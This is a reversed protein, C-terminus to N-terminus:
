LEGSVEQLWLRFRHIAANGPFEHGKKEESCFTLKAGSQKLKAALKETLAFPCNRDQKGHFIFVPIGQFARLNESQLFNPHDGPIGWRNALDPHGSFVALAQFQNTHEWFTRYAGYGGMSFGALIMCNSDVPYHAIVDDIAEQIDQQSIRSSFCNSTGRGLPALGIFGEPIIKQWTLLAQHDDTGSGHLFVLLPSKKGNSITKPIIVSYSQLTSDTKSRYARRLLGTQSAVMDKQKEARSLMLLFVELKKRLNMATDYTKLQELVRRIEQLQFQLTAYSGYSLFKKVRVMRENLHHFNVSPLVTFHIEQAYSHKSDLLQLSYDGEPLDATPLFFEARSLVTQVPLNFEGNKLSEGQQGLILYKFRESGTKPGLATIKLKLDTGKQFHNKELLAYAQIGSGPLPQEFNLGAWLRPSQESQMRKDEVIFYLIKERKGIAQVYCLNFGIQPIQWPHYPYIESWPILVEFGIKGNKVEAEFRINKLPYFSLARNRYWVFKKQWDRRPNQRPSFALVYFEDTEPSGSNPLAFVLHFGDGNQYGRDRYILSDGAIEIFLYFFDANYALRYTPESDSNGPRVKEAVRFSRVPLFRLSDDLKGDIVPTATIFNVRPELSFYRNETHSANAINTLFLFLFSIIIRM